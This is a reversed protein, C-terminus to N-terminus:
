REHQPSGVTLSFSNLSAERDKPEEVEPISAVTNGIGRDEVEDVDGQPDDGRNQLYGGSSRPQAYLTWTRLPAGDQGAGYIDYNQGQKHKPMAM